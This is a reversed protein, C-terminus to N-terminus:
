LRTSSTGRNPRVPEYTLEWRWICLGVLVGLIMFIGTIVLWPGLAETFPQGEYAHAFAWGGGVVFGTGVICVPVDVTHNPLCRRCM